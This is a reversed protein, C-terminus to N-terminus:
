SRWLKALFIISIAMLSFYFVFFQKDQLARHYFLHASKPRASGLFFIVKENDYPNPDPFNNVDYILVRIKHYGEEATWTNRTVIDQTSFHPSTPKDGRFLIGSFFRGDLWFGVYAIHRERSYTTNKLTVTTHIIVEDGTAPSEPTIWVKTIAWDNLIPEVVKYHILATDM